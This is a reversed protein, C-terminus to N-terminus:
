TLPPPDTYSLSWSLVVQLFPFINPVSCLPLVNNQYRGRTKITVYNQHTGHFKDCSYEYTFYIYALSISSFINCSIFFLFPLFSPLFSPLFASSLSYFIFVRHLPSYPLFYAAPYFFSHFSLHFSRLSLSLLTFFHTYQKTVFTAWIQCTILIVFVNYIKHVIFKQM